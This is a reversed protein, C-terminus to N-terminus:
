LIDMVNILSDMAAIPSSMEGWATFALFSVAIAAVAAAAAGGAFFGLPLTLVNEDEVQLGRIRAMVAASDLPLPDSRNSAMESLREFKKMFADM